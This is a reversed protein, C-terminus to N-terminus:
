DTLGWSQLLRDAWNPNSLREGTHNGGFTATMVSAVIWVSVLVRVGRLQWGFRPKKDVTKGILREVRTKLLSKERIFASYLVFRDAADPIEKLKVLASALQAPDTGSRVAWQDAVIERIRDIKRSLLRYGPVFWFLDGLAQTIITGLLDLQRVHGLEHAIVAKLEEASLKEQADKPICIYPRLLGGTFPSGSFTRSVYVDVDRAGAREMALTSAGKRDLRRRREFRIGHIVRRVLLTAAVAIAISLAAILLGSGFTRSLWIALHDGVSTAFEAGDVSKVSFSADLSPGWYSFGGGIQLTHHKPPLTFPDIGTWLISNEPVGRSFDYVIKLFPLSLLFLKWPGTEVRFLWLFFLVVLLGAALSFISNVLLNFFALTAM